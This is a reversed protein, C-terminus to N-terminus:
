VPLYSYMGTISVYHRSYGLFKSRCKGTSTPIQMSLMSLLQGMTEGTHPTIENTEGPHYPRLDNPLSAHLAVNNTTSTTQWFFNFSRFSQRQRTNTSSARLISAIINVNRSTEWQRFESYDRRQDYDLKIANWVYLQRIFATNVNIDSRRKYVYEYAGPLDMDEYKMLYALVIATSRSRGM